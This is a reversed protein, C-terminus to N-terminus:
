GRLQVHGGLNIGGAAQRDRCVGHPFALLIRCYAKFDAVGIAVADHEADFFRAGKGQRDNGGDVLVLLVGM